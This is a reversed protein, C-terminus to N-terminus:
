PRTPEWSELFKSKDKQERRAVLARFIARLHEYPFTGIIMRNNLVITPTSRIGHAYQESTKEYEAGTQLIRHVLDRTHADALAGEVGHRRALERRWVPDKASEFNAFIEDHIQRFKAPDHAAIYSLECAGPHKNKDVVTNCEVDLPFFQFAINIKGRFEERLRELQRHLFLCDSCLFDGYEIVQIPADDFRATSRATWCPSLLSPSAVTPLSFYEEVIQAAAGGSQAQRKADHFLRVGYAGALMVLAFTVSHKLSPRFFGALRSGTEGTARHRWFVVLSFISFVYYVSCLPCISKMVLISYLFLAVVGLVNWLAIAKNTREFVDSPFLAGLVVLAGVMMGFYGIPVGALHAIPSFAASGCNFFASVDCFSGQWISEPYNAEFFHRVTLISAVIMGSGAICQLIRPRLADSPISAPEM